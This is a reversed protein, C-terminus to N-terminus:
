LTHQKLFFSLIFLCAYAGAVIAFLPVPYIGITLSYTANLAAPISIRGIANLFSLGGLIQGSQHRPAHATLCSTLLPALPSASVAILSTIVYSTPSRALAMGMTGIVQLLLSVQIAGLEGINFVASINTIGRRMGWRHALSMATPFIVVLVFISWSFLLAMFFSQTTPQWNFWFAGFRLQLPMLSMMFGIVFFGLIALIVMNAKRSASSTWLSQLSQLLGHVSSTDSEDTDSGIPKDEGVLQSWRSEPLIHLFVMAMFTNACITIRYIKDLPNQTKLLFGSVLPGMAGSFSMSAYLYSFLRPRDTHHAIDTIYASSTSMAVIMSGSLGDVAYGVLLWNMDVTDAHRMVFLTLCQSFLPGLVALAMIRRRGILDSLSGLFPTSIAGLIGSIVQNYVFFKSQDAQAYKNGLCRGLETYLDPNTHEDRPARREPYKQHCILALTANLEPVTLIGFVFQYIAFTCIIWAPSPERFREWRSKPNRRPGTAPYLGTLLPYNEDESRM